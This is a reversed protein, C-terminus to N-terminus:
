LRRTGVAIKARHESIEAFGASSLPARILTTMATTDLTGM